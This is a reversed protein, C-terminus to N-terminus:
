KPNFERTGGPTGPPPIVPTRSGSAPPPETLGPDVGGPPRIVGNSRELRDGLPESSGSGTAQGAQPITQGPQSQVQPSPDSSFSSTPLLCGVVTALGLAAAIRPM